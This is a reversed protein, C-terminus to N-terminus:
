DAICRLAAVLWQREGEFGDLGDLDIDRLLATVGAIHSDCLGDAV